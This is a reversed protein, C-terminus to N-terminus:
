WRKISKVQWVLIDRTVNLLNPVHLRAETSDQSPTIPCVCQKIGSKQPYETEIKQFFLSNYNNFVSSDFTDSFGIFSPCM